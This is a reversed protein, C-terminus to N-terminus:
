SCILGVLNTATTGTSNVRSCRISFIGVPVNSFLQSAGAGNILTINGTVGVYIADANYTFNTSDHPTITFTDKASGYAHNVWFPERKDAM